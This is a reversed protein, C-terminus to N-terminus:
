GLFELIARRFGEPEEVWPMHGVEPMVVVRANPILSELESAAWAGWPDLEGTLVLTRAEIRPLLPRLDLTPAVRENFYTLAPVHYGTGAAAARELFAQEREGYRGFLLPLGRLALLGLEEPDDPPSEERLRRAAVADAFRPDNEREALFRGFAERSEASFRAFTGCLVLRRVRAPYTAAYVMSM